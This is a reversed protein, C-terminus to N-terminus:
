EGLAFEAIASLFKPRPLRPIQGIGSRRSVHAVDTRPTATTTAIDTHETTIDLQTPAVLQFGLMKGHVREMSAHIGPLNAFDCVDQPLLASNEVRGKDDLQALWRRWVNRMQNADIPTVGDHFIVADTRVSRRVYDLAPGLGCRQRHRRVVVQPYRAALDEAVEFTSDTSGDDVVLIGFNNTLESALDLM